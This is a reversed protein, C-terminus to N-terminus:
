EEENDLLAKYLPDNKIRKKLNEKCQYKRSKAYDESKYRMIHAIERVSKGEAFHKLIKQCDSSLKGFHKLYLRKRNETEDHIEFEQSDSLPVYEEVDTIDIVKGPRKSLRQLWLNRCISYFFTKFTSTLELDESVIKKYTIIIADQFLDEADEENGSNKVVLNKVLDIHNYYIATIIESDRTKLGELYDKDSYLFRTRKNM